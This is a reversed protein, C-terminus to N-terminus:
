QSIAHAAQHVAFSFLVAHRINYLPGINRVTDVCRWWADDVVWRPLIWHLRLETTRLLLLLLLVRRYYHWASFQLKNSFSFVNLHFNHVKIFWKFFLPLEMSCMKRLPFQFQWQHLLREMRLLFRENPSQTYCTLLCTSHVLLKTTLTSTDTGLEFVFNAKRLM